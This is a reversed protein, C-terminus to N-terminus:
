RKNRQQKVTLRISRCRGIRTSLEFEVLDRKSAGHKLDQDRRASDDGCEIQAGVSSAVPPVDARSFMAEMEAVVFYGRTPLPIRTQPKSHTTAQHMSSSSISSAGVCGVNM